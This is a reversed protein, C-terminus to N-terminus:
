PVAAKVASKSNRLEEKFDSRLKVMNTLSQKNRGQLFFGQPAKLQGDVLTSDFDIKTSYVIKEESELSKRPADQGIAENSYGIIAMAALLIKIM